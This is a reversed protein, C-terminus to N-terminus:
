VHSPTNFYTYLRVREMLKSKQFVQSSCWDLVSRWWTPKGHRRRAQDCPSVTHSSVKTVHEVQISSWSSRWSSFVNVALLYIYGLQPLWRVEDVIDDDRNSHLSRSCPLPIVVNGVGRHHNQNYQESYKKNTKRLMNGFLICLIERPPALDYM